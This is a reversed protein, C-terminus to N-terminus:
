GDAIARQAAERAEEYTEYAEIIPENSDVVELCTDLGVLLFHRFRRQQPDISGVARLFGSQEAEMLYEGKVDRNNAGHPAVSYLVEEVALFAQPSHFRVSWGRRQRDPNWEAVVLQLAGGCGGGVIELAPWSIDSMSTTVPKWVINADPFVM